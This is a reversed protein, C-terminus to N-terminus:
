EPTGKLTRNSAPTARRSNWTEAVDSSSLSPSSVTSSPKAARGRRTAPPLGLVRVIRSRSHGTSFRPSPVRARVEGVAPWRPWADPARQGQRDDETRQRGPALRRFTTQQVGQGQVPRRRRGQTSGTRDGVLLERGGPGRTRASRQLGGPEHGEVVSRSLPEEDGAGPELGHRPAAPELDQASGSRRLEVRAVPVSGPVALEATVVVVQRRGVARIGPTAATDHSAPALDNALDRVLADQPLVVLGHDTALHHRQPSDEVGGVVVVDQPVLKVVVPRELRAHPGRAAVTGVGRADRVGVAGQPPDVHVEVAGVAIRHEHPAVLHIRRGEGPRVRQLRWVAALLARDVEPRGLERLDVDGVAAVAVVQSREPAAHRPMGLGPQAVVEPGRHGPVPLRVEEFEGGIGGVLFAHGVGVDHEPDDRRHQVQRSVFVAAANSPDPLAGSRDGPAPEIQPRPVDEVARREMRNGPPRIRHDLDRESGANVFHHLAPGRVQDNFQVAVRSPRQLDVHLSSVLASRRIGVVRPQRARHPEVRSLGTALERDRGGGVALALTPLDHPEGEPVQRAPHGAAAPRRGGDDNRGGIPRRQQDSRRLRQLACALDDERRRRDRGSDVGDHHVVRGPAARAGGARLGTRVVGFRAAPQRKGGAGRSSPLDPDGDRVIVVGLLRLDEAEDQAVGARWRGRQLDEARNDVVVVLVRVRRHLNREACRRVFCALAPGHVDGHLQVRDVGAEQLDRQQRDM